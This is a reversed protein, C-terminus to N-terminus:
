CFQDLAKSVGSENVNESKHAKLAPQANFSPLPDREGNQPPLSICPLLWNGRYNDEKRHVFQVFIFHLPVTSQFM